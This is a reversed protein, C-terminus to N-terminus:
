DNCVGKSSVYEMINGLCSLSGFAIIVDKNDSVKFADEVAEKYDGADYVNDCYKSLEEKLLNSSLTREANPLNITFVTHALPGMISCIKDYEKDKFVGMIFILRKGKFYRLLNDRLRIAADENHAGDVIFLPDKGVCTFRGPWRTNKFGEKIHEDSISYGKKNLVKILEVVTVANQVQHRGPLPIFLENLEGYAIKTGFYDESIIEAEEQNAVHLDANKKKAVDEIVKFAEEKQISTVVSTRDTIIGAKKGAIEEISNGLIGMHDMSISAFVAAVKDDLVNTADENGGLGTELFVIDCKKEKFYLFAAATEIEFVTPHDLGKTEMRAVARQVKEVLYAFEDEAINEGNIAMRELYSTVTPSIYRGTKYGAEKLISSAYAIISGKGNTGAVHVFKMNRHPNGLEELLKKITILGLVSGYKSVNDLYVRAEKYTM